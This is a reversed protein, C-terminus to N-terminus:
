KIALALSLAKDNMKQGQALHIYDPNAHGSAKHNTYHTIGQLLGYASKGTRAFETDISELINTVINLKRTSFNEKDKLDYGTVDSVFKKTQEANVKVKNLHLYMEELSKLNKMQTQIDEILNIAKDKNGSTNRFKCIEETFTKKMGNTCILRLTSLYMSTTTKGDFGTKFNLTVVSEDQQGAINKFSVMGIPVTFRVKSGGAMEYYNIGDTTLTDHDIIGNLFSNFLVKPQQPTYDSGVTGLPKGGTNKYTHFLDEPALFRGDNPREFQDLTPAPAALKVVDFLKAQIAAIRKSENGVVHLINEPTM